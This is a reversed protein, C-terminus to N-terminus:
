SKRNRAYNLDSVRVKVKGSAQGPMFGGILYKESDLLTVKYGEIEISEGTKLRADKEEKTSEIIMALSASGDRTNMVGIRLGYITGVTGQSITLDTEGVTTPSAIADRESQQDCGALIITMILVLITYCKM